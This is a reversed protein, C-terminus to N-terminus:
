LVMVMNRVFLDFCILGISVNFMTVSVLVVSVTQCIFILYIAIIDCKKKWLLVIIERKIFNYTISSSFLTWIFCVSCKDTKKSELFM